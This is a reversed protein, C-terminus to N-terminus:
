IWSLHLQWRCNSENGFFRGSSELRFDLGSVLSSQVKRALLQARDPIQIVPVIITMLFQLFNIASDKVMFIAVESFSLSVGYIRVDDLFEAFLENDSSNGVYM